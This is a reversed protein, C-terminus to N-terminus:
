GYPPGVLRHQYAVMRYEHTQQSLRESNGQEKWEMMLNREKRKRERQREPEQQTPTFHFSFCFCFCFYYHILQSFQFMPELLLQM